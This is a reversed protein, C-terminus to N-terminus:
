LETHCHCRRPVHGVSCIDCVKILEVCVQFIKDHFLFFLSSVLLLVFNINKVEILKNQYM